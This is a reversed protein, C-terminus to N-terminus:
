NKRTFGAALVRDELPAEFHGPARGRSASRSSGAAGRSRGRSARRKGGRRRGPSQGRDSSGPSARERRESAADGPPRSPEVRSKGGDARPQAGGQRSEM